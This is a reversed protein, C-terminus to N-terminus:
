IKRCKKRKYKVTRLFEENSKTEICNFLKDNSPFYGYIETLIHIFAM